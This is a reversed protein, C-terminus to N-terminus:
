GTWSGSWKLAAWFNFGTITNSSDKEQGSGMASATGRQAAKPRLGKVWPPKGAVILCKSDGSPWFFSQYSKDEKAKSAAAAAAAGVGAPRDCLWPPSSGPPPRCSRATPRARPGPSSRQGVPSGPVDSPLAAPCHLWCTLSDVGGAVSVGLGGVPPLQEMGSSPTVVVCPAPLSIQASVDQFRPFLQFVPSRWLSDPLQLQYCHNVIAPFPESSIFERCPVSTIKTGKLTLM